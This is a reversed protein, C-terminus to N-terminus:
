VLRKECLVCKYTSHQKKKTRVKRQHSETSSKNSKDDSMNNANVSPSTLCRESQERGGVDNTLARIHFQNSPLSVNVSEFVFESLTRRFFQAIWLSNLKDAKFDFKANDKRTKFIHALTQGNSHSTPPTELTKSTLARTAVM